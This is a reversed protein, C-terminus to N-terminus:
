PTGRNELASEVANKIKGDPLKTTWTALVSRVQAHDDMKFQLPTAITIESPPLMLLADRATTVVGPRRRAIRLIANVGAKQKAPQDRMARGIHRLLDTPDGDGLEDLEADTVSAQERRSESLINAAIDRLREPLSDDILTVG